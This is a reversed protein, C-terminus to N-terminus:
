LLGGMQSNQFMQMALDNYSGSGYPGAMPSMPKRQYPSSYRNFNDQYMKNENQIAMHEKIKDGKKMSENFMAPMWPAAFLGYKALSSRADKSTDGTLEGELKGNFWDGPNLFAPGQGNGAKRQWQDTAAMMPAPVGFFTGAGFGAKRNKDGSGGGFLSKPDPTPISKSM